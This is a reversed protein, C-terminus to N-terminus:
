VGRIIPTKQNSVGPSRSRQEKSMNKKEEEITRPMWCSYKKAPRTITEMKESQICQGEVMIGHSDEKSVMRGVKKAVEEM